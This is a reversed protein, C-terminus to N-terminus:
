ASVERRQLIRLQFLSFVVIVVFFLVANATQYAFEGGEFGGRYIVLSISETSTGPGGNTLPIIHDFVNLFNKFSLVVNITFFSAIMPFTISRFQRWPSAGDISAAEYLDAPITQLGALYLIIAFATSQWVALVVISLWALNEDALISTSFTESGLAQGLYPLSNSFLYNFIYGIILIAM